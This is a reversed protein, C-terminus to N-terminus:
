PLTIWLPKTHYDDALGGIVTLSPINWVYESNFRPRIRQVPKGANNVYLTPPLTFGAFVQKGSAPDLDTYHYRRMDMWLETHAWAWQAIYKQSMIHTLTLGNADPVINPDALFAAKEAATIQTPTQGNDTNRANVFDIHAGIANRYALLAAQKDGARYAAEAKIFQVQAYTMIPMKAKDDFLYRGPLLAGASGPYGWFNNPAQTGTLAGFGNVTIDLGRVTGDPSPALMRTMRPDVAGNFQTGDMLGVVFRTQRYAPFNGRTPGLFSRDANDPSAAPYTLLADDTNGGFSKDAAAIVDAPKYSTKNSYHNLNKALMAYALKLWKTRDGNYIKDTRGLYAADVLGDTRQLNKIAEGLLRQVETYAYEQTDYDFAFRTQDIAQKVIIEGHIDTAEQWGWAKLIFGVGLLDYRQEAEAKTMMDVLNQGLTWYVDRWVQGGNDSGPDYGMRGWTFYPSTATSTSVWEQAFQGIFRGDFQPTTALAHLMPPLYLNATVSQPANPNTNVDLFDKCSTSLGVLAVVAATCLKKM